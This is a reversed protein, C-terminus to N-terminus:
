KANKVLSLFYEHIVPDNTLEPHFTAGLHHGQKVFVPEGEWEGLIEVKTTCAKIRPARIFFAPFKTKHKPDLALNIEAHFSEAQRGFANREVEIDLFGFPTMSDGLIKQSILILGACTGFIPKRKAFEELNVALRIFQIQRMITTSEGGPIILGDCKKL